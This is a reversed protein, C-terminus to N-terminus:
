NKVKRTFRTLHSKSWQADVVDLAHVVHFSLIFCYAVLFWSTGRWVVTLSLTTNIVSGSTKRRIDEHCSSCVAALSM